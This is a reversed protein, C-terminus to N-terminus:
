QQAQLIQKLHNLILKAEFRNRKKVIAYSDSVATVTLPANTLREALGWM